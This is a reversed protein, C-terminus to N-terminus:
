LAVVQGLFPLERRDYITNALQLANQGIPAEPDFSVQGGQHVDSGQHLTSAHNCGPLLLHCGQLKFHNVKWALALARLRQTSAAMDSGM